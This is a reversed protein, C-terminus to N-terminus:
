ECRDPQAQKRMVLRMGGGEAHSYEASDMVKQIIHVGLGGPRLDELDRGRIRDLPVQQAWDRLCVHLMLPQATAREITLSLEIPHGRENGYGHRIINTLAEDIALEVDAIDPGNWGAAALWARVRDRTTPLEAPDSTLELRLADTGSM